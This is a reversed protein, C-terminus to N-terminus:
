FHFMMWTQVVTFDHDDGFVERAAANPTSWAIGVYIYTKEGGFYEVGANIEDAWDRSSLPTGYYHREELDHQFYYVTFALEPRPFSRLKLFQTVQNTNFLHYEGAIEGQYFTDWERGYFGYFMPRYTENEPTSLDDGSFRAYRYTLTTFWPTYPLEFAGELYWGLGENDVDGFDDDEGGQWVVEGYLKLRPVGPVPVDLARLNWARVGDYALANGSYVDIFMAGFRGHQTDVPEINIGYLRSDGFGGASRLWFADARVQKGQVKLVAANKWADFPAVWFQGESDGIDFNGDGILLGDGIMLKQPGLALDFWDNRWGVHAEDIDVRSDGARAFQGSIEGDLVNTAGVLSVGTYFEGEGLAHTARLAPELSLSASARDDEAPADLAGAGFNIGDGYQLGFRLELEPAITWDGLQLPQFASLNVGSGLLVLSLLATLSRRKLVASVDL